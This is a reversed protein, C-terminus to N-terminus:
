GSSASDLRCDWSVAMWRRRHVTESCSVPTVKGTQGPGALPLSCRSAAVGPRGRARRSRCLDQGYVTIPTSVAAEAVVSGCGLLWRSRAELWVRCFLSCGILSGGAQLRGSPLTARREPAALPVPALTTRSPKRMLYASRPARPARWSGAAAVRVGRHKGGRAPGADRGLPHGTLGATTRRGGRWRPGARDDHVPHGSVPCRTGDASDGRGREGSPVRGRGGGPRDRREARLCGWQPVGPGSGPLRVAGPM